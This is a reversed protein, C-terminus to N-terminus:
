PTRGLYALLREGSGASPPVAVPPAFREPRDAASIVLPALRLLDDALAEPLPRDADCARAVDWGHVAIELAGTTMLLTSALAMDGVEVSTPPQSAWSGLLSCASRRLREVPEDPPETAASGRPAPPAVHGTDGAEHLATLSDDMHALLDALDWGRCPTFRHMLSPRVLQLSGRTYGIARELLAVGGTLAPAAHSTM